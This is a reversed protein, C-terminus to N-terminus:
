TKKTDGGELPLQQQDDEIFKINLHTIKRSTKVEEFTIHINAKEKLEAGVVTLVKKKFMGWNYSAPVGMMERLEEVSQRDIWGVLLGNTGKKDQAWSVLLEYFRWTYSSTFSAAGRLPYSSFRSRLGLLHPLIKPNFECVIKGAKPHYSVILMLPIKDRLVGPRPSEVTIVKNVLADGARELHEYSHKGADPFAKAYETALLEIEQSNDGRLPNLKSILAEMCRKEVLGFRYYARSLANSKTVTNNAVDHLPDANALTNSNKTRRETALRIAEIQRDLQRDIKQM